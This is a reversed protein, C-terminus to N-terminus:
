EVRERPHEKAYQLDYEQEKSLKDQYFKVAPQNENKVRLDDVEKIVEDSLKGYKRIKTKDHEAAFCLCFKKASEPTLLKNELMDEAQCNECGYLKSNNTENSCSPCIM